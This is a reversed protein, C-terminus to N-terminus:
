SMHGAWQRGTWLTDEGWGRLAAGDEEQVWGRQADEPPLHGHSLRAHRARREPAPVDRCCQPTRKRKREVLLRLGFQLM